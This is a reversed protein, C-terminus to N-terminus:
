LALVLTQEVMTFREDVVGAAWGDFGLQTDGGQAAEKLATGAGSRLAALQGDVGRDEGLLLCQL